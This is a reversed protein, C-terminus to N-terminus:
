THFSVFTSVRFTGDIAGEKYKRLLDLGFESAFVLMRKDGILENCIVRDEIRAPIEIRLPDNTDLGQDGFQEKAKRKLNNYTRKRAPSSPGNIRVDLPLGEHFIDNASRTSMPNVAQANGRLQQEAIRIQIFSFNFENKDPLFSVKEKEFSAAHKHISNKVKGLKYRRGDREHWGSEVEISGNCGVKRIVCRWSEDGSQLERRFSYEFGDRTLISKEKESKVEYFALKNESNEDEINDELVINPASEDTLALEGESLDM